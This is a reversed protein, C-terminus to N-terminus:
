ESRTEISDFQTLMKKMVKDLDKRMEGTYPNYSQLDLFLQWPDNCTQTVIELLAKYGRTAMSSEKLDMEKLMRGLFHTIGQTYAAEKDHEEATMVQVDLGMRIFQEEWFNLWQRDEGVPSLVVPLHAIGKRASDPGFMPHSGLLPQKEPLNEKLIQLPITKVSCTDVVLTKKGLLPAIQRSINEMSSIATCLFLVDSRCAEELSCSFVGEPVPRDSRNFARVGPFYQCLLSAWFAGFRGLGYVAITM